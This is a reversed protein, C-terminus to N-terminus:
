KSSKPKMQEIRANLDAVTIQGDKNMDLGKNYDYYKNGKTTLVERKAYAPLFVLAYLQGQQLKENEGFGAMKKSSMLCKEVYVLQQEPSMQRLAATSTGLGKATSPMFQILGTAGGNKNYATTKLGSESNMIAMLANADCGVRKSIECVKNYFGDSLNPHSKSWINKLDQADGTFETTDSDSYNSIVSSSASQQVAFTRANNLITLQNKYQNIDNLYQQEEKQILNQLRKKDNTINNKENTAKKIYSQQEASIKALESNIGSIAVEMASCEAQLTQYKQTWNTLDTKNESNDNKATTQLYLIENEADSLERQKETLEKNKAELEKKQKEIKASNELYKNKEEKTLNSERIILGDLETQYRKIKSESSTQRSHILQETLNIQDALQSLYASTNTEGVATSTVNENKVADEYMGKPDTTKYQATVNNLSKEYLRILDSDSLINEGDTTDMNKLADLDEKDIKGDHKSDLTDFLIGISEGLDSKFISSAEENNQEEYKLDNYKTIFQERTLNEAFLADLSNNGSM